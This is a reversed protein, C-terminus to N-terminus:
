GGTGCPGQSKGSGSEGVLAFSEGEAVALSVGHLVTTDGYRVTLNQVDIM